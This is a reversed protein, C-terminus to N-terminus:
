YGCEALGGFQSWAPRIRKKSQHPGEDVAEFVDVAARVREILRLAEPVRRAITFGHLKGISIPRTRHGECAGGSCHGAHRLFLFVEGPSDLRIAARDLEIG